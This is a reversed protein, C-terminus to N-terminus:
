DIKSRNKSGDQIGRVWNPVLPSAGFANKVNESFEMKSAIKTGVHKWKGELFGDFDCWFGIKLPMTKKILKQISKKDIKTRNPFGVQLWFPAAPFPSRDSFEGWPRGSAESSASSTWLGGLVGFHVWFPLERGRFHKWFSVEFGGLACGFRM